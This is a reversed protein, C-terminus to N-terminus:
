VPDKDGNSSDISQLSQPYCLPFRSNSYDPSTKETTDEQSHTLTHTHAKFVTSLDDPLAHLM